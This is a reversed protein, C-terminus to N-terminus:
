IARIDFCDACQIKNTGVIIRGNTSECKPCCTFVVRPMDFQKTESRNLCNCLGSEITAKDCPLLCNKEIYLDQPIFTM